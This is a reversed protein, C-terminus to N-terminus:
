KILLPSAVLSEVLTRITPLDPILALPSELVAGWLQDTGLGWPTPLPPLGGRPRDASLVLERCAMSGLSLLAFSLETGGAWAEWIAGDAWAATSPPWPLFPGPPKSM